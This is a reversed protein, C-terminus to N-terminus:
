GYTINGLSLQLRHPCVQIGRESTSGFIHGFHLLRHQFLSFFFPSLPLQSPTSSFTPSPIEFYYEPKGIQATEYVLSIKDICDKKGDKNHFLGEFGKLPANM